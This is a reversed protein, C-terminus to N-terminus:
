RTPATVGMHPTSKSRHGRMRMLREFYSTILDFEADTASNINPVATASICGAEAPIM